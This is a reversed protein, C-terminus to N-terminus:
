TAADMHDYHNHSILVAHITPLKDLDIGPRLMRPYFVSANGFIPDTLINIGHAQILFTSHGIWTIVPEDSSEISNDYSVWNDEVDPIGNRRKMLSKIFAPFTTFLFSEPRHNKNFYFRGNRKFPYIKESM